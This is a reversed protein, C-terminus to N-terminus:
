NLLSALDALSVRNKSIDLHQLSELKLPNALFKQLVTLRTFKCEHAAETEQINLDRLVLKETKDLSLNM